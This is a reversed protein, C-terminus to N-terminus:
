HTLQFHLKEEVPPTVTVFQTTPDSHLMKAPTAQDEAATCAVFRKGADTKGLIISHASSDAGFHVTYSVIKGRGPDATITKRTLTENSVTTAQSSWDTSSACHSYIGSAHKSLMGGNSTVLAHGSPNKRSWHVAEALAHMSYNNGPGGFYPLGGTATLRRSGDTPLQLQQAVTTVACPFCSYIDIMGIAEIDLQAMSLVREAVRGAMPSVAPDDRYSLELERGEAMGHIFVWKSEPIGLARAKAVSCLLLAAGQNVSDQAIMRKTYLHTLNPAALIDQASQQGTFQAYPNGAAVQSFSELLQAMAERHEDVSRGLKHRQAQEVLAYYYAVNNLGNKIEQSTAVYDGFGRDEHPEEFHENWDLVEGNREAHRQNKLAEAGTLLVASRTGKAIDTAFEIVRSQPENGGTQTYIRHTPNAGIRSAVSQPPNNSRGSKSQWRRGIDSFLKTVCITDIHQAVNSVSCDEIAANSALAALQMPSIQNAERQVVQGAGILIPTNDNLSAFEKM